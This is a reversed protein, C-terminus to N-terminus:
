FPIEDLEAQTFGKAQNDEPEKDIGETSWEAAKSIKDKLWDPMKEFDNMDPQTILFASLENVGEAKKKTAMLAGVNAYTKDGSQNHVVQLKCFKGLLKTIEFADAEDETFPVGRWADLDARLNAKKNMSLTYTKSISFVREGDEMYVPQGDDDQLLEWYLMVQHVNRTGFKQSEITQTGLDIMKYCRALYVGSPVQEFEGGTNSPANIATVSM